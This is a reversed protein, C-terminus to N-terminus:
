HVKEPSGNAIRILQLLDSRAERYDLESPLTPALADLADLRSKIISLDEPTPHKPDPLGKENLDDILDQRESKPLREDHIAEVWYKEAEPNVGVLALAERALPDEVVKGKKKGGHAAAFAKADKQIDEKSRLTQHSKLVIDGDKPVERVCGIGFAFYKYEVDGEALTEKVKVCNRYNGAPVTVSEGASVIEDDEHIESNVDESKFTAGVKPRFPMMVGPTQTDKGYLWSGSHGVVKGNKYENVDEGLYLVTGDDAQAFYDMAVEALEGNKFERDEVALSEVTQQNITFTKHLDPKATREIRVKQGDETGELIDQKLSALPLYPNTINRPNTFKLADLPNNAGYINGVFFAATGVVLVPWFTKSMANM